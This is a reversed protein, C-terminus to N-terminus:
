DYLTQFVKQIYEQLPLKERKALKKLTKSVGTAYQMARKPKNALQSPLGMKEAVKRLVIKQLKDNKSSIKLKLPLGLAFEALRHSAFPLRLEVNHFNCLKFDREINTEYLKLIDNRIIKQTEKEGSRAYVTAYRKYGGFLEDAGQGSLLVKFGLEATKEATWYVPIGVSAKVIDACEIVQLVEPLTEEVDKESYVYWRLPLDLAEAADEAQKTEMQGELSVHVLHVKVGAKEALLATLSSDVGGSFAVVVDDVGCVREETSKELLRQLKEVAEDIGIYSAAMSKLTRVPWIKFGNENVLAIHGPPFSMVEKVGINWLAKRESAVACVADNEGYYLPYAGFSDRGVILGRSKAIAFAFSGDTEEVLAEAKAVEGSNLMDVISDISLLKSSKYARGEFVLAAKKLMVPQPKDMALVKSFVHGVVVSSKVEQFRLKELSTEVQIHTSSAIGFSEAGKTALAKLMVASYNAANEGKRDLVAVFAKM